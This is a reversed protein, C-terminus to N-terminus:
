VGGVMDEALRKETRRSGIWAVGVVRPAPRARCASICRRRPTFCSPVAVPDDPIHVRAEVVRDPDQELGLLQDLGDRAVELEGRAVGQPDALALRADQAERGQDVVHGVDGEAVVDLVLGPEEAPVVRGVPEPARQVRVRREARRELAEAHPALHLVRSAAL